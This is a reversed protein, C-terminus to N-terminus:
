QDFNFTALKVLSTLSPQTASSSSTHVSGGAVISDTVLTVPPAREDASSEGSTVHMEPSSHAVNGPVGIGASM